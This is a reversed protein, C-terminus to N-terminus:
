VPLCERPLLGLRVLEIIERREDVFGVVRVRGRADPVSPTLELRERRPKRQRDKITCVERFAPAVGRLVQRENVPWRSRDRIRLTVLCDPLTETLLLRERTGQRIKEPKKPPALPPPPPSLAWQKETLWVNGGGASVSSTSVTPAFTTLALTATTPTCTIPTSVTPAYTSTTLATTAPTCTVPTSVTPAFTTLTATTPTCAVPASVTPAFTSLTLAATTPTCAVPTSVTPAFTSLTLTATSPTGVTAVTVTPAFTTLTLTATTPTCLRPASVTPAFTTLTLAATTPTVVQPTASSPPFSWLKRALPYYLDWRTRPDFQHYVEAPHLVRNYWRIDHAWGGFREGASPHAFLRNFDSSGGTEATAAANFVGNVYVTLTSSGNRVLTFLNWQETTFSGVTQNSGGEATRLFFNGSSTLGLRCSGGSSGLIRGLGVGSAAGVFYWCSFTWYDGSLSAITASSSDDGKVSWGGNVGFPASSLGTDPIAHNGGILDLYLTDAQSNLPWWNRLGVIQPSETNLTVVPESPRQNWPETRSTILHTAM